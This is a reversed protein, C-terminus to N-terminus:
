WLSLQKLRFLAGIENPINSNLNNGNLQLITLNSLNGVTPHIAGSLVNDNLDLHRLSRISFIESPINGSLYNYNLDLVLLSTLDKLQTPIFGSLGDIGNAYDEENNAGEITLWRLTTLKGLEDPLIGKVSNSDFYIRDLMKNEENCALGGWLCEDVPSLWLENSWLSTIPDNKPFIKEDLSDCKKESNRGCSEWFEDGNTSFYFVALAYRQILKPNDLCIKYADDSDLWRLAKSQVNGLEITDSVSKAIAELKDSREKDTMGPCITSTPVVSPQQTTPRNTPSMTQIYTPQKTKIDTPSHTPDKTPQKTPNNSPLNTPTETPGFTPPLTVPIVPSINNFAYCKENFSNKGSVLLAAGFLEECTSYSKEISNEQCGNLDDEDGFLFVEKLNIRGSVRSLKVQQASDENCWTFKYIVDFQSCEKFPDNKFDECSSGDEVLICTVKSSINCNPTKSPSLTPFSTPNLTPDLTIRFTPQNTPSLTPVNTPETTPANTPEITPVNTPALTKPFTDLAQFAYCENKNQDSGLMILSAFFRKSNCINVTAKATGTMCEGSMMNFNRNEFIADGGNFKTRVFWINVLKDQGNVCWKLKYELDRSCDQPSNLIIDKCDSGEGEVTCELQVSVSCASPKSTPSHTPTTTPLLTPRLTPLSSTPSLTPNETPKVGTIPSLTPIHTPSPSPKLIEPTFNKSSFSYCDDDSGDPNIKGGILHM